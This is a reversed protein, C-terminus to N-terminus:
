REESTIISLIYGRQYLTKIIPRVQEVKRENKM